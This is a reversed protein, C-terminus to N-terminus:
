IVVWGFRDGHTIYQIFGTPSTFHPSLFGPECLMPGIPLSSDWCWGIVEIPSPDVLPGIEVSLGVQRTGGQVVVAGIM